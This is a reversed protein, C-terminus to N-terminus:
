KKDYEIIVTMREPKVDFIRPEQGLYSIFRNKQHHIIGFLASHTVEIVKPLEEARWLLVDAVVYDPEKAVVLERLDALKEDVKMRFHGQIYEAACPAWQNSYEPEALFPYQELLATQFDNRDYQFHLSFAGNELKKLTTVSLHSPHAFASIGAFWLCILIGTKRLKAVKTKDM